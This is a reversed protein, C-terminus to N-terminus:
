CIPALYDALPVHNLQTRIIEILRLRMSGPQLVYLVVASERFRSGMVRQAPLMCIGRKLLVQGHWLLAATGLLKSKSSEALRTTVVKLLQHIM